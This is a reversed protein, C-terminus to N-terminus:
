SNRQSIAKALVALARQKTRAVAQQSIKLRCATEKQTLCDLLLCRLVNQQNPTLENLLAALSLDDILNSINDHPDTVTDWFDTDETGYNDAPFIERQWNRRSKKFLTYLRGDVLKKAYGAFPIGLSPKYNRVAEIFTMAAESEADEQIPRLYSKRAAKNLLPAYRSLLQTLAAEDGDQANLLLTSEPIITKETTM